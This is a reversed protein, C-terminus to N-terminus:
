ISSPCQRMTCIRFWHLLQATDARAYSGFFPSGILPEMDRPLHSDNRVVLEDGGVTSRPRRGNQRRPDSKLPGQPRHVVAPGARRPRRYAVISLDERQMSDLDLRWLVILIVLVIWLWQQKFYTARPCAARFKHPHLPRQFTMKSYEFPKVRRDRHGHALRQLGHGATSEKFPISCPPLSSATPAALSSSSCTELPSM